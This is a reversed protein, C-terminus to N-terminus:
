KNSFMAPIFGSVNIYILKLAAAARHAQKFVHWKAKSQACTNCLSTLLNDIFVKMSKLEDILHYNTHTLYDYWTAMLLMKIPGSAKRFTIVSIIEKLPESQQTRLM